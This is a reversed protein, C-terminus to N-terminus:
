INVQDKESKDTPKKMTITDLTIDGQKSKNSYFGGVTRSELNSRVQMSQLFRGFEIESLGGSRLQDHRSSLAPSQPCDFMHESDCMCDQQAQYHRSFAATNEFELTCGQEELVFFM